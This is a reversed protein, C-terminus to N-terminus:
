KKKSGTKAKTTKPKTTKATKAKLAANEAKLKAMDDPSVYETVGQINLWVKAISDPIDGITDNALFYVKGNLFHSLGNGCKNNIKMVKRENGNNNGGM